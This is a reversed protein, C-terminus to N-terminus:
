YYYLLNFRIKRNVFTYDKKKKKSESERENRSYKNSEISCNKM